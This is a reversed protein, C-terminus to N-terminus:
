RGHIGNNPSESFLNEKLQVSTVIMEMDTVDPVNQNHQQSLSELLCSAEPPTTILSEAM